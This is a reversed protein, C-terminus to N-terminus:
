ARGREKITALHGGLLGWERRKFALRRTRRAFRKWDLGTKPERAIETTPERVATGSTPVSSHTRLGLWRIIAVTGAAILLTWLLLLMVAGAVMDSDVIRHASDVIKKM